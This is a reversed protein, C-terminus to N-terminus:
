LYWARLERLYNASAQVNMSAPILVTLGPLNVLLGRKSWTM